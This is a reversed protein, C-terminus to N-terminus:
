SWGKSKSYAQLKELNSKETESFEASVKNMDAQKTMNKYWDFQNFHNNEEETTFQYGHRAYIENIALKITEQDKVKENIQEDTLLNKDSEPFVLEAKPEVSAKGTHISKGDYTIQKDIKYEKTQDVEKYTVANPKFNSDLNPKVKKGEVRGVFFTAVFVVILLLDVVALLIAIPKKKEKM